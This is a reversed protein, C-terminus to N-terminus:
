TANQLHKAEKINLNTSLNIGVKLLANVRGNNIPNSHVREWFAEYDNCDTFGFSDTLLIAAESIKLLINRYQESVGDLDLFHIQVGPNLIEDYSEFQLGKNTSM